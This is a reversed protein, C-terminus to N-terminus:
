IGEEVMLEELRNILRQTRQIWGIVCARRKCVKAEWHIIDNTMAGCIECEYCKCCDVDDGCFECMDHSEIIIPM